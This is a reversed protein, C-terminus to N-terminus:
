LFCYLPRSSANKRVFYVLSSSCLKKTSKKTLSRSSLKIVSFLASQLSFSKSGGKLNIRIFLIDVFYPQSAALIASFQRSCYPCSSSLSRDLKEFSISTAFSAAGGFRSTLNTLQLSDTIFLHILESSSSVTNENVWSNNMVLCWVTVKIVEPM